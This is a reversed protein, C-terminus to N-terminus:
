AECEELSHTYDIEWKQIEQWLLCIFSNGGLKCYTNFASSATKYAYIPIKKSDCYQYFIDKIIARCQDKAFEKQVDMDKHLAIKFEENSEIYKDLKNVLNNITENQEEDCKIKNFINSIWKRIPKSVTMLFALLASLCGIITAIDKALDVIKDTMQM